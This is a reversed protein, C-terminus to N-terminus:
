PTVPTAKPLAIGKKAMVDRLVAPVDTIIGDIGMDILEAMRGADNVTWVKVKLGLEHARDIAKQDIDRHFPSWVDGGARAIMDPLSAFEDIDLGATWPSAGPKGKGINDLWKQQASLYVTTVGPAQRQVEALTRWDFSQITVRGALGQANVVDLVSAVFDAPPPTEGPKGPDLKTEINFRVRDNGARAALEFVESLTPITVGDMQKQKAFRGRYRSNPDISGVDYSKIQELTLSFLAPAGPSVYKGDPGRALDPSLSRNHSVIVTGDKSVGLDLELTSVGTTLAYAFAPLTNEPMVARGGRHAQLDLTQAVAATQIVAVSVLVAFLKLM